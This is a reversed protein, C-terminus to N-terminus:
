FGDIDCFSAPRGDSLSAIGRSVGCTHVIQLAGESLIHQQLHDILAVEVEAMPQHPTVANGREPPACNYSLARAHRRTEKTALAFSNASPSVAQAGTGRRVEEHQPPRATAGARQYRGAESPVRRMLQEDPRRERRIETPTSGGTDWSGPENAPFRLPREPPPAGTEALPWVALDPEPRSHDGARFPVQPAIDARDGVRRALM